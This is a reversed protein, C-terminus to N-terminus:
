KQNLSILCHTLMQLKMNWTLSAELHLTRSRRIWTVFVNRDLLLLILSVGV